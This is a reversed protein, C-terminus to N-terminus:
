YVFKISCLIIWEKQSAHPFCKLLTDIYLLTSSYLWKRMAYPNFVHCQPQLYISNLLRQKGFLTLICHLTSKHMNHIHMLINVGVANM